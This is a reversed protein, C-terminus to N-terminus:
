SIVRPDEALLRNVIEELAVLRTHVSDLETSRTEIIAHTERLVERLEDLHDDGRAESVVLPVGPSDAVDSLAARSGWGVVFALGVFFTAVIGSVSGAMTASTSGGSPSAPPMPSQPLVALIALSAYWVSRDGDHKDDLESRLEDLARKLRMRVTSPKLDLRRAIEAGSLGEFYRLIVVDRSAEDLSLVLDVILRLIELKQVCEEPGVLSEGSAVVRERARQRERRRFSLMAFNRLVRGLWPRYRSEDRPGSRLAAAWTEQVLDEADSPDRVLHRALSGLWESHELLHEAHNM